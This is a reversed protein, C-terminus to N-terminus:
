LDFNLNSKINVSNMLEETNKFNVKEHFMLDFDFGKCEKKLTTKLKNWNIFESPFHSKYNLIHATGYEPFAVININLINEEKCKITFKFHINNHNGEGIPRFNYGM